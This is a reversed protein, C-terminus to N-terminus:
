DLHDVSVALGATRVTRTEIALFTLDADKDLNFYIGVIVRGAPARAIAQLQSPVYTRDDCTGNYEYGTLKTQLNISEQYFCEDPHTNAQDGPGGGDTDAGWSWGTIIQSNGPSFWKLYSSKGTSPAGGACTTLRWSSDINGFDVSGDANVPATTIGIVCKWDDSGYGIATLGYGEPVIDIPGASYKYNAGWEGGLAYVTSIDFSFLSLSVFVSLIFIKHFKITM